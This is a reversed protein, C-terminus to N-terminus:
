DLGKLRRNWVAVDDFCICKVFAVAVCRFAMAFSDFDVAPCEARDIDHVFVAKDVQRNVAAEVQFFNSHALVNDVIVGHQHQSVKLTMSHTTESARHLIDGNTRAEPWTPLRWTWPM